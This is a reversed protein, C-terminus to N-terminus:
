KMKLSIHSMSRAIESIPNSPPFADRPVIVRERRHEKKIPPVSHQNEPMSPPSRVDDDDSSSMRLRKTRKPTGRVINTRPFPPNQLIYYKRLLKLLARGEPSKTGNTAAVLGEKSVRAGRRLLLRAADIHMEKCVISFATNGYSDVAETPVGNRILIEMVEVNGSLAAYHLPTMRDDNLVHMNIGALEFLELSDVSQELSAVHIATDNIEDRCLPDLNTNELLYRLVEIQGVMAARMYGHVPNAGAALLKRVEGLAGYHCANEIRNFGNVIQELLQIQGDDYPPFSSGSYRYRAPIGLECRVMNECILRTGKLGLITFQEELNPFLPTPSPSLIHDGLFDMDEQSSQNKWWNQHLVHTWEHAAIIYDPTKHFIIENNDDRCISYIVEDLNLGVDIGPGQQIKKVGNEQDPFVRIQEDAIALSHILLRGSPCTMLKRIIAYIKAQFPTPGKIRLSTKNKPISQYLEICKKAETLHMQRPNTLTVTDPVVSLSDDQFFELVERIEKAEQASKKAVEQFASTIQGSGTGLLARPVQVLTKYGFPLPTNRLQRIVEQPNLELFPSSARNTVPDQPSPIRSTPSSVTIPRLSM